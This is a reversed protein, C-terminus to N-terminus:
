VIIEVTNVVTILIAEQKIDYLREPICYFLLTLCYLVLTIAHVVM